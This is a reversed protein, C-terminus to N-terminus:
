AETPVYGHCDSLDYFKSQLTRRIEDHRGIVPDLKGDLALQTLDTSYQKLAEGPATPQQGFINMGGGPNSSMCRVQKLTRKTPEVRFQATDIMQPNKLFTYTAYSIPRVDQVCRRSHRLAMKKVINTFM